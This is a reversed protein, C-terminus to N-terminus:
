RIFYTAEKREGMRSPGMEKEKRGGIPESTLVVKRRETALMSSIGALFFFVGKFHLCGLMKAYIKLGKFLTLSQLESSSKM